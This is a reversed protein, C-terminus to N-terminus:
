RAERRLRYFTDSVWSLRPRNWDLRQRTLISRAQVLM